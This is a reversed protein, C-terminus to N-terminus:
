TGSVSTPPPMAAQKLFPTRADAGNPCRIGNRYGGTCNQYLGTQLCMRAPGCVPQCTISYHVDTGARSMRDFNPTLELSQWSRRDHGMAAPRYFLRYREPPRCADAESRPRSLCSRSWHDILGAAAAIDIRLSLEENRDTRDPASAGRTEPFRHLAM